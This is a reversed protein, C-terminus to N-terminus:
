AILSWVSTQGSERRPVQGTDRDNCGPMQKKRGGRGAGGPLRGAKADPFRGRIGTMVVPCKSKGDEEARM